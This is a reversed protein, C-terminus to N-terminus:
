PGVYKVGQGGERVDGIKVAHVEGSDALLGLLRQAREQTCAIVLGIGMNFTRLMDEDPVNGTRQLWRFIAPVKWTSRDIVAHTGAPLM